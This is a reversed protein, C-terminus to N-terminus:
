ASSAARRTPATSRPARGECSSSAPCTTWRFRFLRGDKIASSPFRSIPGDLLVAVRRSLARNFGRTGMNFDWLGGQTVQAGPTFELLKALQGQLAKREIRDAVLTAAAPADVIREVQRSAGRVILTRHFGRGTSPRRSRHPRGPPSRCTSDRRHRGLTLTISYSGPPLNAFSFQGDTGTFGDRRDGQADGERGGRRERGQPRSPGRYTRRTRRTRSECLVSMLSQLTFLLTSLVRVPMRSWIRVVQCLGSM